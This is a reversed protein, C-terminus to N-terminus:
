SLALQEEFHPSSWGDGPFELAVYVAESAGFAQLYDLREVIHGESRHVVSM